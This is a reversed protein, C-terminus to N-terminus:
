RENKGRKHKANRSRCRHLCDLIKIVNRNKLSYYSRTVEKRCQVIDSLRLIKLQQSALSQKIGSIECLDSVTLEGDTLISVLRLRAPNALAKLIDTYREIDGPAYRDAARKRIKNHRRVAM